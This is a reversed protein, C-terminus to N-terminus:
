NITFYEMGFAVSAAGLGALLVLLTVLLQQLTLPEDKNLTEQETFLRPIGQVVREDSMYRETLHLIIGSAHLSDIM